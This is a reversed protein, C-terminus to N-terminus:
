LHSPPACSALSAQSAPTPTLPQPKFAPPQPNPTPPQAPNQARKARSPTSSVSESPPEPSAAPARLSQIRELDRLADRYNRQVSNVIRHLRGLTRDALDFAQGIPAEESPSYAKNMEYAYLQAEAVALRRLTWTSRILIDVLDRQEPAAPRYRQYYEATLADLHARDEGPILLSKAYIGTKMANMSSRAKGEASRPGTAHSKM